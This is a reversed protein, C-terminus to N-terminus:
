PPSNNLIIHSLSHIQGQDDKDDATLNLKNDFDELAKDLDDLNEEGTAKNEEQVPKQETTSEKNEM